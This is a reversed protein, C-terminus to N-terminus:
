KDQLVVVANQDRVAINNREEAYFTVSGPKTEEYQGTFGVGDIIEFASAFDGFYVIKNNTTGMPKMAPNLFVPYGFLTGVMWNAQLGNNREYLYNGATDKIGRIKSNTSPHIMFAAQGAMNEQNALHYQIPLADILDLIDQADMVNATAVKNRKITHGLNAAYAAAAGVAYSDIGKPNPSTGNGSMFATAEAASLAAFADNMLKMVSDPNDNIWDRRVPFEVSNTQLPVNYTGVGQNGQDATRTGLDYGANAKGILQNFQKSAGSVVSAPIRGRLKNGLHRVSFLSSNQVNGGAGAGSGTLTNAEAIISDLRVKAKGGHKELEDLATKHAEKVQINIQEGSTKAEIVSPASLEVIKDELATVKANVEERIGNQLEVVKDIVQDHINKDPM